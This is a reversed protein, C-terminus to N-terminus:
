GASLFSRSSVARHFPPPEAGSFAPKGLEPADRRGHWQRMFSRREGSQMGKGASERKERSLDM